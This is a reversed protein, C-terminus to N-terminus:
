IMGGDGLVSFDDLHDFLDHLPSPAEISQAVGDANEDVMEFSARSAAMRERRLKEILCKSHITATHLETALISQRLHHLLPRM